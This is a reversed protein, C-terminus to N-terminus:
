TALSPNRMLYTMIRREGQNSHLVVKGRVLIAKSSQGFAVPMDPANEWNWNEFDFFKCFRSFTNATSKGGCTLLGNDLEEFITPKLCFSGCPRPPLTISELLTVDDIPYTIIESPDPGIGTM